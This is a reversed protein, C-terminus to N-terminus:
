KKHKWEMTLLVIDDAVKQADTDETGNFYGRIYRDKDVLVFKDSHIFDDAGGDGPGTTIGLQHRAFNYITKKDGTLFWWNDPNVHYHDAYSRLLPFSDREPNVTISIFQVITDLSEEKKPDKKFSKQLLRMNATLKPCTATCGTFFLDFVLIKGKLMKNLSVTQGLQNTLVLDGVRHYFTDTVTKGNVQKNEISDILYYKPM